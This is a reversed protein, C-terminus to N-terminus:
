FNRVIRYIAASDHSRRFEKIVALKVRTEAIEREYENLAMFFTPISSDLEDLQSAPYIRIDDRDLVRLMVLKDEISMLKVRKARERLPLFRRDFRTTGVEQESLEYVIANEPLEHQLYSMLEGYNKNSDIAIKIVEIRESLIPTKGSIYIISPILLLVAGCAFLLNRKVHAYAHERLERAVPKVFRSILIALVLAFPFGAELLYGNHYYRACLFSLLSAGAWGIPMRLEPDFVFVYVCCFVLWYVALPQLRMLVLTLLFAALPWIWDAQDFHFKSKVRNAIHQLVGGGILLLMVIGTVGSTLITGYYFFRESLFNFIESVEPFASLVSGESTQPSLRIIFFGAILIGLVPFINKISLKQSKYQEISTTILIATLLIPTTQRSMAPV